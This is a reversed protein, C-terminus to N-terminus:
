YTFKVSVAKKVWGRFETIFSTFVVIEGDM